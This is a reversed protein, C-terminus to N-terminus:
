ELQLWEPLVGDQPTGNMIASSGQESARAIWLPTREYDTKFDLLTSILTGWKDKTIGISFLCLIMFNTTRSPIIGHRYLYATVIPAPILSRNSM